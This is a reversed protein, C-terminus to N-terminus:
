GSRTTMRWPLSRSLERRPGIAPPPQNAKALMPAIRNRQEPSLNDWAKEIRGSIVPDIHIKM